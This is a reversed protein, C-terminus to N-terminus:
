MFVMAVLMPMLFIESCAIIGLLNQTHQRTLESVRDALTTAKGLAYCIQTAFSVTHLLGYLFIPMLAVSLLLDYM